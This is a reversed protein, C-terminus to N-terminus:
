DFCEEIHGGSTAVILLLRKRFQGMTRDIVDQGTQKWCTQLVEKRHEIDRIRCHCYVLQKFAGWITYAVTNLDPCLGWNEPEM